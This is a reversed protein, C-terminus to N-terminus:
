TYLACAWLINGAHFFFHHLSAKVEASNPQWPVNFVHWPISVQQGHPKFIMNMCASSVIAMDDILM